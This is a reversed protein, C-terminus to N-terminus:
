GKLQRQLWRRPEGVMAQGRHPKRTKFASRSVRHGPRSLRKKARKRVTSAKPFTTGTSVM